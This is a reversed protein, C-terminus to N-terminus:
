LEFKERSVRKRRLSDFVASHTAGKLLMEVANGAKLVQEEKGIISITKGYVSISAGTDKEIEDRAKGSSGIVRGKKSKLLSPNKGLVEKLEIMELVCEDDLLRFAKEPSFGRAIAKVIKMAKLHQFPQQAGEQIVEVEGGGSDIEIRTRTKREIKRKTEGKRGILVGIREHPVLLFDSVPSDM